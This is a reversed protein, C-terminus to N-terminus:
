LLAFLLIFLSSVKMYFSNNTTPDNSAPKSSCAPETWECKVDGSFTTGECTSKTPTEVNECTTHGTCTAPIDGWECHTIKGCLAETTGGSCDEEEEEEVICGETAATFTCQAGTVSYTTKLCNESDTKASCVNGSDGSCKGATWQCATNATCTAEPTLAACADASTSYSVLSLLILLTKINKMKLTENKKM